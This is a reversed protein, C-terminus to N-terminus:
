RVNDATRKAPQRLRAPIDVVTDPIVRRVHLARPQDLAARIGRYPHVHLLERRFAAPIMQVDVVTVADLRRQEGDEGPQHVLIAIVNAAHRFYYRSGSTRQEM